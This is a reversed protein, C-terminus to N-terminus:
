KGFFASIVDDDSDDGFVDDLVIKTKVVKKEDQKDDQKVESMDSKDNTEEQDKWKVRSKDKSKNKEKTKDKAKAKSKVLGKTKMSGGKVKFANPFLTKFPVEDDSLKESKMHVESPSRVLETRVTCTGGGKRVTCTGYVKGVVKSKDEDESSSDCNIKRATRKTRAM